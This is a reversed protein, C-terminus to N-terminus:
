SIRELAGWREFDSLGPLKITTERYLAESLAALAAPNIEIITPGNWRGIEMPLDITEGAVDVSYCSLAEETKIPRLAADVATALIGGVGLLFGRRNM